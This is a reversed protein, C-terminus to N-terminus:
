DLTIVEVSESAKKIDAKKAELAEKIQKELENMKLIICAFQESVCKKKEETTCHPYTGESCLITTCLKGEDTTSDFIVGNNTVSGEDAYAVACIPEKKKGDERKAYLTTSEPAFKMAKELEEMTLESIFIVSDQVVKIKM